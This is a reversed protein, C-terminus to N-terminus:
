GDHAPERRESGPAHRIAAVGNVFAVSLQELLGLKRKAMRSLAGHLILTPIAVILGLATTVLAESIGSSLSKADGTGFITILQFTKIMGIVTGLLGLLPAAAATIALFPLFRELSPRVRLITEFLLEELVGRKEDAHAVGTALMEGAAGEVQQAQWGAAEQNGKSLEGLVVDVQDPEAVPFGLIEYSKFATLLLAAMGLGLIVYGVVGGDAVYQALTKRAKEVKLAKGLTADFPLAGSGATALKRIGDNLRGPLPVVVPDAANLQTEVLGTVKGDKSSYFITPGLAVFRGETLVGEPSLAAGAFVDGGLQGRLRALAAEVVAIQTGRKGAEDLNVNKEALKAAATLAEYRPLESIDLRSEFDRVFENLRSNVFDEQSSLSEVQRRLTTLDITGSDRVKILRDHERRLALVQDELRSVSRSLPIKEVAIQDRAQALERLSQELRRDVDGRAADFSQAAAVTSFILGAACTSVVAALVGLRSTKM